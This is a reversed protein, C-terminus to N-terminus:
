DADGGAAHHKKQSVTQILLESTLFIIFPPCTCHSGETTSNKMVLHVESARYRTKGTFAPLHCGATRSGLSLLKWTSISATSLHKHVHQYKQKPSLYKTCVHWCAMKSTKFCKWWLITMTGKIQSISVHLMKLDILRSLIEGANDHVCRGWQGHSLFLTDLIIIALAFVTEVNPGSGLDANLSWFCEFASDHYLYLCLSIPHESLIIQFRFASSLALCKCVLHLLFGSDETTYILFFCNLMNMSNEPLFADFPYMIGYLLLM